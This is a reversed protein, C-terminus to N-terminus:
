GKALETRRSLWFMTISSAVLVLSFIPLWAPGAAEYALGSVAAGGAMGLYVASSNLALLLNSRPADLTVLRTQQPAFLMLGMTSWVFMAVVAVLTTKPLLPILSMVIFLGILSIWIMRDYGLRDTMRAAIINGFIGGFGYIFLALAVTAVPVNFVEALYLGILSYTCFQGAIQFFTVALTPALLKDSLIDAISKLNVANPASTSPVFARALGAQVLTVVAIGVLVWRWGVSDGLWNSLPVGAVTSLTLGAFAIALASGRRHAPVIAAASASTMPGVFAAGFAMLTRGVSVEFYSTSVACVLLGAAMGLLGCVLLVSRDRQGFFVQALPAALAYTLAFVTVLFAITGPSVALERAMPVVLGVVSLSGVGLVFYAGALTSLARLESPPHRKSTDEETSTATSKTALQAAPKATPTSSM